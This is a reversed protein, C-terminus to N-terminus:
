SSYCRFCSLVMKILNFIDPCYHAIKNNYYDTECRVEIYNSTSLPRSGPLSVFMAVFLCQQSVLMSDILTRTVLMGRRYFRVWPGVQVVYDAPATADFCRKEAFAQLATMDQEIDGKEKETM